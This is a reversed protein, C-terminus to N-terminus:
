LKHYIQNDIIRKLKIVQKTNNIKIFIKLYSKKLHTKLQKILRKVYEFILLFM